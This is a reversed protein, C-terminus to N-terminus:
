IKIKGKFLGLYFGLDNTACVAKRPFVNILGALSLHSHVTPCFQSKHLKWRVTKLFRFRPWSPSFIYSIFNKPPCGGGGYLPWKYFMSFPLVAYSRDCPCLTHLRSASLAPKPRMLRHSKTGIIFKDLFQTMCFFLLHLTAIQQYKRRCRLKMLKIDPTFDIEQAAHIM